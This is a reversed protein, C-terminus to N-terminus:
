RLRYQSDIRDSRVEVAKGYHQWAAVGGGILAAALLVVFAIKWRSYPREGQVEGSRGNVVFRYIKERFRFASMWIPLLVHKFRIDGYRTDAALIRQHDGGIDREIDHRITPAMIERAREFGQDLEVQYMESRFGSLYAEQYPTLNALDWPELQETVARPLSQSALVLVDDFFRSVRGAAPTWRTKTVTRTREVKRGDEIAIYTEQVQYDDGREGQYSTTTDADYTWYPVYMGSLSADNRAYDKLKSPAFWLKGLWQHFATRAQDRGIQFPLLAQPQLQRHQETKAVAPAGCFPCLGSHVTGDFSYSAGCSDCHIAVNDRTTATTALLQLTQRFDQEVIPAAAAVIRNEHGCHSCRLVETGPAYELAAGCQACPFRHPAPLHDDTASPDPIPNM